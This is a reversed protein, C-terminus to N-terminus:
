GVFSRRYGIVIGAYYVLNAVVFGAFLWHVATMAVDLPLSARAAGVEAPAIAAVPLAVIQIATWALVAAGLVFGAWRAASREIRWDREDLPPTTGTRRINRDAVANGIHFIVLLVVVAGAAAWFLGLAALPWQLVVYLYPTYVLAIAIGCAWANREIYGM